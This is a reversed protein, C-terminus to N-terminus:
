NPKVYQNIHKHVEHLLSYDGVTPQVNLQRENVDEDMYGYLLMNGNENALTM